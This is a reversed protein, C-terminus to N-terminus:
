LLGLYPCHFYIARKFRERDRFGRTSCNIWQINANLGETVANTIRHTLYNLINEVHWSGSHSWPPEAPSQRAALVGM